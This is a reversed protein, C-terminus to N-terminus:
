HKETLQERKLNLCTAVRKLDRAISCQWVTFCAWGLKRLKRIVRRDRRQNASIKKEWFAANSKVQYSIRCYHGHWFCGHVFVVSHLSPFILDPTGPLGYSIRSYRFGRAWLYKKAFCEIDTNATKVGSMLKSRERKSLTDM